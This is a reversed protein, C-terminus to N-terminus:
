IGTLRRFGQLRMMLLSLRCAVPSLIFVIFFLVIGSVQVRLGSVQEKSM